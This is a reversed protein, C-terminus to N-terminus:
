DDYLVFAKSVNIRAAKSAEVEEYAPFLAYQKRWQVERDDEGKERLLQLYSDRRYLEPIEKRPGKIYDLFERVDTPIMEEAKYKQAFAEAVEVAAKGVALSGRYIKLVGELAAHVKTLDAKVWRTGKVREIPALIDWNSCENYIYQELTRRNTFDRGKDTVEVLGLITNFRAEEWEAKEWTAFLHMAHASYEALNERLGYFYLRNSSFVDSVKLYRRLSNAERQTRCSHLINKVQEETLIGGGIKAKSEEHRIVLLARQKATGHELVYDYDLEKKM